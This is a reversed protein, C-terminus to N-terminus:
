AAQAKANIWFQGDSTLPSGDGALIGAAKLLRELSGDSPHRLTLSRGAAIATRRASILLQVISLDVDALEACDITIPSPTALLRELEEALRAVDRLGLSGKLPLHQVPGNM